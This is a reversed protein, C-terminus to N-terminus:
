KPKCEKYHKCSTLKCRCEVLIKNGRKVLGHTKEGNAYSCALDEVWYIKLAEPSLLRTLIKKCYQDNVLGHSCEVLKRLTNRDKIQSILKRDDIIQKANLPYVNSTITVNPNNM